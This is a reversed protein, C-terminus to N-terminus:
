APGTNPATLVGRFTNSCRVARQAVSHKLQEPVVGPETGYVRGTALTQQNGEERIGRM